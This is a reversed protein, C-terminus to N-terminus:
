ARHETRDGIGEGAPCLGGTHGERKMYVRPKRRRRGTRWSIGTSDSEDSRASLDAPVARPAGETSRFGLAEAKMSNRNTKLAM